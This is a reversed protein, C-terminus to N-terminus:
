FDGRKSLLYLRVLFSGAWMVIATLYFVDPLTVASFDVLATLYIASVFFLIGDVPKIVNGLRRWLSLSPATVAAKERRLRLTEAREEKREAKSRRKM